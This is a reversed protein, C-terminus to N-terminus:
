EGGNGQETDTDNTSVQQLLPKVTEGPQYKAQGGTIVRDGENLGNTVEALMSGQLGLQINRPQVHNQRDVVLLSAQDGNKVVAQLPVTLVNDKRELELTANAYMGPALSLDKNEVDIETEMTRTALSVDRTFRVIKGTLTRGVADVRVQVPAGEHIFQVADEPVPLRLRLMDSQSLKVVPLTQIDSTTGAQILAGTDADRWIVVGDFPATVRTYANMDSIRENDAGAVESQQDAAALAAKAADVQAEAALDKSQADDLEQEAILGPQAASAQKLRLYDAHLASHEAQARSLEHQARTIEDKSHAVEAVTGKLQADLEPVELVALVQGQRVKDGIDVYIHKIYGSVKAHVDVVQYPQFQGALNLTHTITERTVAAVTASPIEAADAQMNKARSSCATVGVVAPLALGIALMLSCQKRM